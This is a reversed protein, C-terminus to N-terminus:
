GRTSATYDPYTADRRSIVSPEIPWDIAFLPDNWRVGQVLEPAYREGMLYLIETSDRLTVFGHACGAPVHLSRRNAASLEVGFWDLYSSSEVRLDVVVDFLEGATCRVLKPDPLPEAQFHLGRLTATRPNFSVNVHVVKPLLGREAFQDQAYARGFSGRADPELELDVVVVGDIGTEEFRM